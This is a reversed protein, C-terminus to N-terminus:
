IFSLRFNQAAAQIKLLRGYLLCARFQKELSIRGSPMIILSDGNKHTLRSNDRPEGECEGEGEGEGEGKEKDNRM